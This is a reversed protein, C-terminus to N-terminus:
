LNKARGAPMVQIKDAFAADPTFYEEFGPSILIRIPREDPIFLAHCDPLRNLLVESENIGMVFLATSAADTEVASAGIVTVAAIGKVPYGTRPDIIHTYRETGITVFQEYNGSTAVAMGTTLNVTGIIRSLDFPNRVGIKWPRGTRAAGRCRINGGLNIMVNRVNLAALKRYCLDVAYGKAIGGLDVSMGPMDLRVTKNSLIVHGYGVSRLAARIDTENLPKDPVTGGSFGWLRVLPAITPDFSGGSAEGYKLALELVEITHRSVPVPFKGASQNLRSIESDPKFVSLTNDIERFIDRALDAYKKLHERDRDPVSVGAFTGMVPWTEKAPKREASCGSTFLICIVAVTSLLNSILLKMTRM